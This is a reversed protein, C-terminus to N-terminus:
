AALLSGPRDLSVMWTSDEDDAMYATVSHNRFKAPVSDPFLKILTGVGRVDWRDILGLAEAEWGKIVDEMRRCMKEDFRHSMSEDFSRVSDAFATNLLLAPLAAKVLTDALYREQGVGGLGWSRERLAVSLSKKAKAKISEFKIEM